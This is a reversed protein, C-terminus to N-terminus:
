PSTVKNKAKNREKLVIEIIKRQRITRRLMTSYFAGVSALATIIVVAVFFAVWASTSSRLVESFIPSFLGFLIVVIGIQKMDDERSHLDANLLELDKTKYRAFHQKIDKLDSVKAMKEIKM